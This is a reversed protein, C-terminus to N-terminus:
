KLEDILKILAETAEETTSWATAFRIMTHTPDTKEMFGYEVKQGLKEIFADDAVFFIQNTPSDFALQYGSEQLKQKIRAASEIAPVGIRGYLGDRFLADFQVGLLRGKALLAGHQKIMSFFHPIMGRKTLVVAEGFLLGCKTGGIYFVDCLRALDALTVDNEPAALAYALRAGDVFLPLDYARCVASIQTLEDLSYLTGYETPQSLYVLGPMVMHDRNADEQWAQAVQRISAASLKGAQAQATLVKHGGYEIAGAEHVAVHGSPAAIVGQYPRLLSDIVVANAQTGGILFHVEGQPCDCAQLIEQEAKQCFPDQGYGATSLANTRVLADLVQPHAGEMYDSAFHLKEITTQM